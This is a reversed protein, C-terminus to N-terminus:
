VPYDSGIATAKGFQEGAVVLADDPPRDVITPEIWFGPGEDAKGGTAFTCGRAKCDEIHEKVISFQMNNQLPGFTSPFDVPARTKIKEFEEVLTHLFAPYISKHVYVRKTAVCMQGSHFLCGIAVQRAVSAPDVDECVISADNGGLELTIRKLHLTLGRGIEAGGNLAQLVGPPFTNLAIEVVKLTTYPTFPSPKVIVCNGTVLGAAIKGTALVLPFNWPCIAAVVGLPTRTAIVKVTADEHVIEDSM